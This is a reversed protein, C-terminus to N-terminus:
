SNSSAPFKKRSHSYSIADGVGALQHPGPLRHGGHRSHELDTALREVSPRYGPQMWLASLGGVVHICRDFVSRSAM